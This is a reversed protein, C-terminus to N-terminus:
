KCRYYNTILGLLLSNCLESDVFDPFSSKNLLEDVEELVDEFHEMFETFDKKGTKVDLLYPASKLPFHIDKYVLLEWVEMAARFAHSLAKWDVGSNIQAQISRVGYNKVLNNLIELAYGVKMSEQIVKGCVNYQRIGSSNTEIYYCNKDNPLLNWNFSVREDLHFCSLFEICSKVSALRSGKLGYKIAQTKAFGLFSKINKSYFMKRNDHIAEWELSSYLVVSSGAHLMDIANTDGDKALKFFYQISYLQIDIDDKTNKCNSSENQISKPIEGLYMMDRSPIFVGKIDLDSEPTNTGYLQSGFKTLFIVECGPNKELLEGLVKDVHDMNLYEKEMNM